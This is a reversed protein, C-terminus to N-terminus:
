IVMSLVVRPNVLSSKLTNYKDQDDDNSFLISVKFPSASDMANPYSEAVRGRMAGAFNTNYYDLSAQSAFIIDTVFVLECESCSSNVCCVLPEGSASVLTLLETAHQRLFEAYPLSTLQERQLDSRNGLSPLETRIRRTIRHSEDSMIKTKSNVKSSFSQL